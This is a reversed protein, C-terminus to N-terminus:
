TNKIDYWLSSSLEEFFSISYAIFNSHIALYTHKNCAFKEGTSRVSGSTYLTHRIFIWIEHSINFWRNQQIRVSKSKIWSWQIQELFASHKLKQLLNMIKLAFFFRKLHRFTWWKVLEKKMGAHWQSMVTVMCAIFTSSISLLFWFLDYILNLEM